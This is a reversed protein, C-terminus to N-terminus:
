LLPQNTRSSQQAWTKGGDATHVITGNDGVAWLETGIGFIANLPQLTGSRQTEWTKGGDATHLITGGEGVAWLQSGDSGWISYLLATTNSWRVARPANEDTFGPDVRHWGSEGCGALALCAFVILALGASCRNPGGLTV